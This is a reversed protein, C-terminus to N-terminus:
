PLPVEFCYLHFSKDCTHVSSQGDDTWVDNSTGAVGAIGRSTGDNKSWGYCSKSDAPASGYQGGIGNAMTGTWVSATGGDSLKLKAGTEDKDIGTSLAISGGDVAGGDPVVLVTLARDLTYWRGSPNRMALNPLASTAPFRNTSLWARWQGGLGAKMALSQCETDGQAFGGQYTASTVFTRMRAEAGADGPLAAGEAAGDVLAGSSSDGAGAEEVPSPGGGAFSGCAAGVGLAGVCTGFAFVRMRYVVM